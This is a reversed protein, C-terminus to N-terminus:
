ETTMTKISKDQEDTSLDDPDKYKNEEKNKKEQENIRKKQEKLSPEQLTIYEHYSKAMIKRLLENREKHSLWERFGIFALLIAIIITLQTM